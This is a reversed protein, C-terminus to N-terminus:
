KKYQLIGYKVLENRIKDALEDLEQDKKSEGNQIIELIEGDRFYYTKEADNGQIMLELATLCLKPYDKSLQSLSELVRFDPEVIGGTKGLTDIFMKLM